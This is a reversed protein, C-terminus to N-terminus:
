PVGVTSMFARLSNFLNIADTGTLGGGITVAAQQNALGSLGGSDNAGLCYMNASPIANSADTFTFFNGGGFYANTTTAGVRSAM